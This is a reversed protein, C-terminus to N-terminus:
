PTASPTAEPTQEAEPTAGATPTEGTGPAAPDAPQKQPLPAPSYTAFEGVRPVVPVKLTIQGGREFRLTVEITEGGNLQQTLGALVVPPGAAAFSGSGAPLDQPAPTATKRTAKGSPTPTAGSPQATADPAPQAPKPSSTLSIPQNLPLTIGSGGNIRAGQQFAPSTVALLKDPRGDTSGNIIVGYVPAASGPKLQRGSDPGLVFLNRIMIGSETDANVGETLQTPLATQANTGASCGAVAPAIVFAGAIALAIVRRSNRIM